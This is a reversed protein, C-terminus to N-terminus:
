KVTPLTIYKEIIALLSALEVPKELYAVADLSGKTPVPFVASLVAVPVSALEPDDLMRQRLGWGGDEGPMQLDTIVLNPLTEHHKMSHLAQVGDEVSEVTYGKMTLLTGLVERLDPNDDVLLLYPTSGSDDDM